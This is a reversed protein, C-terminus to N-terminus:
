ECGKFNDQRGGLNANGSIAEVEGHGKVESGACAITTFGGTSCEKAVQNFNGGGNNRWVASCVGKRTFNSAENNKVFNEKGSVEACEAGPCKYSENTALAPQVASLATVSATSLGAVLLLPILAAYLKKSM